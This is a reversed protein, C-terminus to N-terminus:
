KRDYETQLFALMQEFGEETLPFQEAAEIEGRDRIIEYCLDQRWVSVLLQGDEPIVIYRLPGRSGTHINSSQFYFLKPIDFANRPQHEQM